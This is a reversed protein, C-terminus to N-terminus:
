VEIQEPLQARIKELNGETLYAENIRAKNYHLVTDKTREILYATYFREWSPYYRSDAYDYTNELVNEDM